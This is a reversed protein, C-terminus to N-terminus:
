LYHKLVDAEHLTEKSAPNFLTLAHAPRHSDMPMLVEPVSGKFGDLM